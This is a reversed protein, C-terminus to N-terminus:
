DAYGVQVGVLEPVGCGAERDGGAGVHLDDLLHEAVARRGHREVGVTVEELVPEVLDGGRHVGGARRGLM